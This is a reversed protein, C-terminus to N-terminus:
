SSLAPGRRRPGQRKKEKAAKAKRAPVTRWKPRVVREGVLAGVKRGLKFAKHLSVALGRAAEEDTAKEVIVRGAGDRGPGIVYWFGDAEQEVVFQQPGCCRDCVPPNGYAWSCGHVCARNETCGCVVCRM